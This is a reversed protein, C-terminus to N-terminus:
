KALRELIAEALAGAGLDHNGDVERIINSLRDVDEEPDIVVLPRLPRTIDAPHDTDGYENVLMVGHETNVSWFRDGNPHEYVKRPEYVPEPEPAPQDAEETIDLPLVLTGRETKVRVSARGPFFFDSVPSGPVETLTQGIFGVTVSDGTGVDDHDGSARHPLVKFKRPKAMPQHATLTYDHPSVLYGGIFFRLPKPEHHPYEKVETVTGEIKAPSPEGRELTVTDGAKVKSPDIASM